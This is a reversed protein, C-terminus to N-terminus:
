LVMMAPDFDPSDYVTGGAGAAARAVAMAAAVAGDIRDKSTGKHFMRNGAKDTDVSINEFNWRLVPHGGHQLNGGVIARELEKVAPAMTIWGQRMEVAPYGDELLNNLTNRALHPDFAIERVQYVECLRRIEDEVARFDVVNGSTPTIFGDDAWRPYPVGDRDQRARLNDGPCFFWPVVIYGDGRRFAAVIVTLDSNSSLDVGLWCPEGRLAELDVPESGGDYVLMDVFPDTSHDLWINLHLQRFAERDAPRNQAERALQRLGEIDPFGCSLGPNVARWVAEDQWDADRDAEFLIPLTAPDDIEGRAVKRAYHVIDWAVNEQGRGATTIVVLLSGPTKVLGTRIVDWLDRKKWAHLEDVLAFHPTGGHAREADCSIARFTSGSKNHTFRHQSDVFKLKGAIRPDAKAIGQAEDFAIRAQERDSAACVVQGLPVQEPGIAHILALAAGLSTKRNGRPLLAIVNRVIRRGDEHCPGYSRRVIREQWPPLDFARGKLRSKPHKLLRLFKVAREGYGFPDAIDSQDFIWDTGVM